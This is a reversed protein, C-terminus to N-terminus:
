DIWVRRDPYIEQWASALKYAAYIGDASDVPENGALITYM